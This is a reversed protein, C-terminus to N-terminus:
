RASRLELLDAVAVILEASRYPKSDGATSRGSGRSSTRRAPQVPWPGPTDEPSSSAPRDGSRRDGRAARLPRLFPRPVRVSMSRPHASRARDSRRRARPTPRARACAGRPMAGPGSRRPAPRRRGARARAAAQRARLVLVGPEGVPHALHLDVRALGLERGLARHAQQTLHDRWPKARARGPRGRTPPPPRRAAGVGRGSRRRRRSSRRRGRGAVRDRDVSRRVGSGREATAVAQVRLATGSSAEHPRQEAMGAADHCTM